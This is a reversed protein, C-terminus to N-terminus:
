SASCDDTASSLQARDVRREALQLAPPGRRQLHELALGPDALRPQEGLEPPDGVPATAEHQGAARRLELVLQREPDEDVREVLVHAPQRRGHERRAILEFRARARAAATRARDGRPIASGSSRWRACWATRSSSPAAPRAGAARARARRGASPRSRSARAARRAAAGVARPGPASRARRAGAGPAPAAAARREFARVARAREVPELERRQAAVLGARQEAFAGGVGDVVLAAAVREVQLLERAREPARAVERAVHRGRQGLFERQEGIVSAAHELARRHRAVRERGLQGRRGRAISSPSARSASSSNSRNSRTRAWRRAGASGSGGDARAGRPRRRRARRSAARRARARPRRAPRARTRAGGRARVVDLAVRARAVHVRDRTSRSAPRAASWASGALAACQNAAASRSSGASAVSSRSPRSSTWARASAASRRSDGAAALRQQLAQPQRRGVGRQARAHDGRARRGLSQEPAVGLRAGADLPREGLQGVARDRAGDSSIISSAASPKKWVSQVRIHSHAACPAPPRARARRGATARRSCRRQHREGVGEDPASRPRAALMAVRGRRQEVRQRVLQERLADVGAQVQHARLQVQVAEGGCAAVALPREVDAARGALAHEERGQQGGEARAVLHESPEVLRTSSSSPPISAARRDPLGCASDSASIFREAAALVARRCRSRAPTRRPTAPPRRRARSSAPRPTRPTRARARAAAPPRAPGRARAAAACHAAALLQRPHRARPPGAAVLQERM